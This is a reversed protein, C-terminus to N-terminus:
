ERSEKDSDLLRERSAVSCLEEIALDFDTKTVSTSGSLSNLYRNYARRFAADALKQHQRISTIVLYYLRCSAARLTAEDLVVNGSYFPILESIVYDRPIANMKVQETEKYEIVMPRNSGILSEGTM